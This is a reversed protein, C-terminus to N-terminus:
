ECKKLKDRLNDKQYILNVIENQDYNSSINYSFQFTLYEIKKFEQLINIFFKHIVM